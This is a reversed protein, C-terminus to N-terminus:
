RTVSISVGLEANPAGVTVRNNTASKSSTYGTDYSACSTFKPKTPDTPMQAVYTPTLAACLDVNGVGTGINTATSTIGAPLNGANDASYQHIANLLANVDSRRQTNNALSFQRSPNVAVLVIALLVTLIGMVVILEILTFGKLGISKLLKM